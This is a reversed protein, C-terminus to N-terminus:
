AVSNPEFGPLFEFQGRATIDLVFATNRRSHPTSTWVEAVSLGAVLALLSKIFVAHSVVLIHSEARETCIKELFDQARLRVAHFSEGEAPEFLHPAHDWNLRDQPWHEEVEAWTKGEWVGLHMERVREDLHMPVHPISERILHATQQARGLPSVVMIEIPFQSLHIGLERAQAIGKATLASDGQNGQVREEANWETEGHRVLYLRKKSNM